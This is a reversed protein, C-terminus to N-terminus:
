SQLLKEMFRRREEAFLRHAEPSPVIPGRISGFPMDPRRQKPDHNWDDHRYKDRNAQIRFDPIECTNNGNLASRYGQIGVLTMDIGSYVDLKPEIVGTEIARCFYYSTFFDGGGHGHRRAETLNVPFEATYWQDHCPADPADFAEQHIRLRPDGQNWEMSGRNCCIRYRQGHDRLSSWPVLKVIADNDMKCMLVGGNDGQRLSNVQQPDDYDYPFVFGNVSVPRTGTINMVPGMSHTCYYLPSLWCRWHESDSYLTAMEAASIPHIYEGEGYVFKGYAGSEFLRKMELNQAFFPYNEALMYIKGSKEVAEVLRVAEALTLCAMCESLVHKGAALAAEAAWVHETAYNALIVADVGSNLMAQFDDYGRCNDGILRVMRNLLDRNSDCVATIEAGNAKAGNALSLGRRGGIVGVKLKKM